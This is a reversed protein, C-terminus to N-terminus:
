ISCCPDRESAPAVRSLFEALMVLRVALEGQEIILLPVNMRQQLRHAWAREFERHEQVRAREEHGGPRERAADRARQALVQEVEGDVLVLAQFFACDGDTFVPELVGNERNRLTFHGDVLLRGSDAARMRDLRAISEERVQERRELPWRDFAAFDHPAIIQRIVSSGTVQRDGPYDLVHRQLLTTKGTGSIGGVCVAFGPRAGASNVGDGVELPPAM